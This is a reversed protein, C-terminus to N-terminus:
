KADVNPIRKQFDLVLMRTELILMFFGIAILCEGIEAAGLFSSKSAFIEFMWDRFLVAILFGIALGRSGVPLGVQDAVSHATRSFHVLFPILVGYILVAILFLSPLLYGFLNHINNENQVNAGKMVELTDIDFIRQGWSIEEGFFVFLFVSLCSLMFRHRFPMEYRIALFGALISSVLFFAAGMYEVFGDEEIIANIASQGLMGPAVFIFVVGIGALTLITAFSLNLVGLDISRSLVPQHEVIHRWLASTVIRQRFLAAGMCAVALAACVIRFAAVELFATQQVLANASTLSRRLPGLDVLVSPTVSWAIGAFALAGIILGVNILLPSKIM